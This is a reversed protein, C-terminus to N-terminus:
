LQRFRGSMYARGEARRTYRPVRVKSAIDQYGYDPSSRLKAHTQSVHRDESVVTIHGSEAAHLAYALLRTDSKSALVKERIYAEPEYGKSHAEEVYDVEPQRTALSRVTSAPLGEVDEHRIRGLTALVALGDLNKATTAMVERTDEVCGSYTTEGELLADDDIVTMHRKVLEALKHNGKIENLTSKLVALRRKSGRAIYAPLQAQYHILGCADFLITGASGMSALEELGIVSETCAM